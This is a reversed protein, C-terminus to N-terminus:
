VTPYPDNTMYTFSKRPIVATGGNAQVFYLSGDVWLSWRVAGIGSSYTDFINSEELTRVPKYGSPLSAVLANYTTTVVGAGGGAIKAQVLDGKRVLDIYATTLDGSAVNDNVFYLTATYVVENAELNDVRQELAYYSGAGNSIGVCKWYGAIRQLQLVCPELVRYTTYEVGRIMMPVDTFNLLAYLGATNGWDMFNLTIKSQDAFLSGITVNKNINDLMNVSVPVGSVATFDGTAVTYAFEPNIGDKTRVLNSNIVTFEVWSGASPLEVITASNGDIVLAGVALATVRVVAGNYMTSADIKVSHGADALYDCFPNANTVGAATLKPSFGRLLGLTGATLRNEISSGAPFAYSQNGEFEREITWMDGVIGTVKVVEKKSNDTASTIVAIFFEGADLSAWATSDVVQLSTQAVTIASNLSTSIFNRAAFRSNDGFSGDIVVSM